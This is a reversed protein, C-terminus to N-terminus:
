PADAVEVPWRFADGCLPVFRVVTKGLRIETGPQLERAGLIPENDIYALNTGDGPQVYFKRNAPDYVVVIHRTRSLMRDNNSFAVRNTDADRGVSNQGIGIQGVLGSGPGDVVVLWGTPPDDMPDGISSMRRAPAHGPSRGVVITADGGPQGQPEVLKTAEDFRDAPVVPGAPAPDGWPDDDSRAGVSITPEFDPEPSSRDTLSKGRRHVATPEDKPSRSKSHRPPM